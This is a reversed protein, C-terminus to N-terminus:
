YDRLYVRERRLDISTVTDDYPTWIRRINVGGTMAKRKYMTKQFESNFVESNNRLGM